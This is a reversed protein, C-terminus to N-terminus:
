SCQEFGSDTGASPETPAFRWAFDTAGLTLLLVGHSDSLRVESGPANGPIERLAQGGTGVVFERIGSSSPAGASDLRAFREYNHEHGTLLLDTGHTVLLEYLATVSADPGHVGSSWRPHHWVAATCRPQPLSLQTALWTYQASGVDCGGAQACNSNLMFVRWQAIEVVYWPQELTGVRDGFYAFYGAGGSNYEHNGPVPFTVHKFPGYSPDYCNAFDASTGNPYALDGTAVLVGTRPDILAATNDAEGGCQGIDGTVYVLSTSVPPAPDNPAGPVTSPQPTWVVIRRSKSTKAAATRTARVRVRYKWNGEDPTTFRLTLRGAANTRGRWIRTWQTSGSRARLLAVTRRTAYGGSTIRIRDRVEARPTVRRTSNNWGRIHTPRPVEGSTPLAAGALPGRSPTPSAHAPFIPLLLCGASMSLFASMPRGRSM